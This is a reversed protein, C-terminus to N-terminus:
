LKNILDDINANADRQKRNIIELVVETLYPYDKFNFSYNRLFETLSVIIKIYKEKNTFENNAVLQTDLVQLDKVTEALESNVKEYKEIKKLIINVAKSNENIGKLQSFANQINQSDVKVSLTEQANFYILLNNLKHIAVNNNGLILIDRQIITKSCSQILEDFSKSMYYASIQNRIAQEGESYKEAIQSECKSRELALDLTQKSIKEKQSNILEDKELIQQELAEINKTDLKEIRGNLSNVQKQLISIENNLSNKEELHSPILTDNMYKKQVELYEKQKKLENGLSDTQRLLSKIEEIYECNQSYGGIALLM